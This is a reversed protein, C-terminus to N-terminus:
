LNSQIERKGQDVYTIFVLINQEKCIQTLTKKYTKSVNHGFILHKIEGQNFTVFRDKRIIRYESENEWCKFKKYLSDVIKEELLSDNVWCFPKENQETLYSVKKYM